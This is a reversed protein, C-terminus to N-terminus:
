RRWFNHRRVVITFHTSRNRESPQCPQIVSGFGEVFSMRALIRALAASFEAVAPSGECVSDGSVAFGAPDGVGATAASTVGFLVLSMREAARAAAFGAAVGPLVAPIRAAAFFGAPPDDAADGATPAAAFPGDSIMAAIRAFAPAAGADDGEASEGATPPVAFTAFASGDVTEPSDAASIIRAALDAAPPTAAGGFTTSGVFGRGPLTGAPADLDLVASIGRRETSDEITAVRHEGTTIAHLANTPEIVTEANAVARNM